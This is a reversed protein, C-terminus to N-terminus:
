FTSSNHINGEKQAKEAMAYLEDWTKPPNAEVDIGAAKLIDKNYYLVPVSIGYPIACIRGAFKVYDWAGTYISSKAFGPDEILTEITFDNMAGTYLPAASILALDPATGTALNASLKTAADAYSGAYSLNIKINPNAKQYAEVQAAFTEGTVGSVAYWVELEVNETPKTYLKTADSTTGTTAGGCATLTALMMATALLTAILKKM